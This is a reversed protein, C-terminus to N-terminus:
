GKSGSKAPTLMRTMEDLENRIGTLRKEVERGEEDTTKVLARTSDTAMTKPDKELATRLQRLGSLFQEFVQRTEQSALKIQDFDQELEVRHQQALSRVRADKIRSLNETWNEFYAKGRAQMAQSRARVRVSEIELREVADSYANIARPPVPVAHTSVQNLADLAKRMSTQAEAAIRQYEAIGNRPRPANPNPDNSACGALM